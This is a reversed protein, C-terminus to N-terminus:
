GDVAGARLKRGTHPREAEEFVDVGGEVVFGTLEACPKGLKADCESCRQYRKWDVATM